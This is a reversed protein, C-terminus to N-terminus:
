VHHAELIQVAAEPIMELYAQTKAKDRQPSPGSVDYRPPHFVPFGLIAPLRNYFIMAASDVHLGVVGSFGQHKSQAVSFAVLPVGLYTLKRNWIQSTLYGPFAALHEIYVITTGSQYESPFDPQLNVFGALVEGYWAVFKQRAPVNQQSWELPKWKTWSPCHADDDTLSHHNSLAGALKQWVKALYRNSREDADAFDLIAGRPQGEVEVLAKFEYDALRFETM